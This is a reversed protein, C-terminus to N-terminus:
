ILAVLLTLHMWFVIGAKPDPVPDCPARVALSCGGSIPVYAFLPPDFTPTSCLLVFLLFAVVLAANGVCLVVSVGVTEQGNRTPGNRAARPIGYRLFVLAFLASVVSLAAAVPVVTVQSFM